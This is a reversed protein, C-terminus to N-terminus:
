FTKRKQQDGTPVASAKQREKRTFGKTMNIKEAFFFAILNRIRTMNTSSRRTLKTQVKSSKLFQLNEDTKIRRTTDCTHIQEEYVLPKHCLQKQCSHMGSKCNDFSHCAM